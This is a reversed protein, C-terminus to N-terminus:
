KLGLEKKVENMFLREKDPDSISGISIYLKTKNDDLKKYTVYAGPCEFKGDVPTDTVQALNPYGAKPAATKIAPAMKAIPVALEESTAQGEHFTAKLSDCGSILIALAGIGVILALLKKM